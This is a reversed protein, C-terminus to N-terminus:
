EEIREVWDPHLIVRGEFEAFDNYKNIVFVTSINYEPLEDPELKVEKDTIDRGDLIHSWDNEGNMELLLLEESKGNSRM